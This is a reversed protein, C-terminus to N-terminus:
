ILVYMSTSPKYKFNFYDVKTTLYPKFIQFKFPLSKFKKKSNSEHYYMSFSHQYAGFFIINQMHVCMCWYRVKSLICRNDMQTRNGAGELFSTINFPKISLSSTISRPLGTKPLFPIIYPMPNWFWILNKRICLKHHLFEVYLTKKRKKKRPESDTLLMLFDMQVMGTQAIQLHGATNLRQNSLLLWRQVTEAMPRFGVEGHSSAM